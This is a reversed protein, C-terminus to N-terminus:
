VGAGVGQRRPPSRRAPRQDGGGFVLLAVAILIIVGGASWLIIPLTTIAFLKSINKKAEESNKSVTEDNLQLTGNFVYTGEGAAQSPERLEQKGDQRGALIAGTTPEVWLTRTVEYYLDAKITPVDPKGILKGPVDRTDIKTPPITIVYRNTDIGKVQEEGDFRADVAQKIETDFWKYTRQEAGFPFKFNLGPQLLQNRSARKRDGKNDEYFQGECPVVAEGTHRDMCLGRLGATVVLDDEDDKVISAETWATVDSDRDVEPQSLDGTVHTTSTLSLNERIEPSSSSGNPVYVLATIGSGQAVSKTDINHPVKALRPYAYLQLLLGTAVAFVGLGLLVFTIVRRM